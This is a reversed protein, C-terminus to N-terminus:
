WLVAVNSAPLPRRGANSDARFSKDHRRRTGRDNAGYRHDWTRRQGLAEAPIVLQEGM